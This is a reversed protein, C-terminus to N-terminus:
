CDFGGFACRRASPEGYSAEFECEDARFEDITVEPAEENLIELLSSLRVPKEFRAVVPPPYVANRCDRNGDAPLCEAIVIVAISTLRGDKRMWDVVGDGGWTLSEELVLAHPHHRELLELCDLGTSAVAVDIGLRTFYRRHQELLADDSEAILLRRRM